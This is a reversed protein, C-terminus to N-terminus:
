HQLLQAATKGLQPNSEAAPLGGLRLQVRQWSIQDLNRRLLARQVRVTRRHRGVIRDFTKGWLREREPCGILEATVRVGDDARQVSGDYILRVQM